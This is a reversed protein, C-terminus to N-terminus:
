RSGEATLDSLWRIGRDDPVAKRAEEVRAVADQRNGTLLLAIVLNTWGPAFGPFAKVTQEYLEIARRTLGRHEAAIASFFLPRPDQDLMGRSLRFLQMARNLDHEEMAQVGRQLLDERVPSPSKPAENLARLAQLQELNRRAAAHGPYTKLAKRYCNAATDLKGLDELTAGMQVLTEAQRPSAVLAQQFAELAERPKGEARLAIGKASFGATEGSAWTGIQVM